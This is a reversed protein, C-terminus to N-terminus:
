WHSRFQLRNSWAALSVWLKASELNEESKFCSASFRVCNKVEKTLGRKSQNIKQIPNWWTLKGGRKSSTWPKTVNLRRSRNLYTASRIKVYRKVHVPNKFFCKDIPTFPELIMLTAMVATPLPSPPFEGHRGGSSTSTIAFIMKWENGVSGLILHKKEASTKSFRCSETAVVRGNNCVHSVFPFLLYCTLVLSIKSNDTRSKFLSGHNVPTINKPKNNNNKEEKGSAILIKKQREPWTFRMVVGLNEERFSWKFYSKWRQFPNFTVPDNKLVGVSFSDHSILSVLLM